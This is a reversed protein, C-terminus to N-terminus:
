IKSGCVVKSLIIELVRFLILEANFIAQSINIPLKHQGLQKMINATMIVCTRAGQIDYRRM